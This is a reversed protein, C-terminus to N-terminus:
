EGRASCFLGSLEEHHGGGAALWASTLRPRQPSGTAGCSSSPMAPPFGGRSVQSTPSCCTFHCTDGFVAPLPAALSTGSLQPAAMPGCCAAGTGGSMHHCDWHLLRPLSTM